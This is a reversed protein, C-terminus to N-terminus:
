RRQLLCAAAHKSRLRPSRHWRRRDTDRRLPHSGTPARQRQVFVWVFLVVSLVVHRHYRPPSRRSPQHLQCRRRCALRRRRRRRGINSRRRRPRRRPRHPRRGISSQHSSNRLASCEDGSCWTGGPELRRRLLRETGYRRTNAKRPPRPSRRRTPQCHKGTLTWSQKGRRVNQQEFASWRRRRAHRRRPM